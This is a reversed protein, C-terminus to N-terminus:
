YSFNKLFIKQARPLLSSGSVLSSSAKSLLDRLSWVYASPMFFPARM